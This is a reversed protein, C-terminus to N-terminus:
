GQGFHIFLNEQQGKYARQLRSPCGSCGRRGGESRAGLPGTYLQYLTRYSYRPKSLHIHHWLYAAVFRLCSINCSQVLLVLIKVVDSPDDEHFSLYGCWSLPRRMLRPLTTYVSQTVTPPARSLLSASSPVLLHLRVAVNSISVSHKKAIVDLTNLMEQFLPWGGWYHIWPMYKRLSVNKLKDFVPEPKNLWESSIFGGQLM